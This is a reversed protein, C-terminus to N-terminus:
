KSIQGAAFLAFDFFPPVVNDMRFVQVVRQSKGATGVSTYITAQAPLSCPNGSGGCNLGKPAVAMQQSTDSYLIRARIIVPLQGSPKVDLSPTIQCKFKRDSYRTTDASPSSSTNILYPTAPCDASDFGNATVRGLNSDFYQRTTNYKTGDWTILNVELAPSDDGTSAPDGFYIDVESGQYILSLTPPLAGKPDTLWFQAVTEKGIPPYELAQGPRPLDYIPRVQASSENGLDGTQLIDGIPSGASELQLAKEIGAEAASFARSSQETQTSISVDTISRQTIALGVTLAVLATLLLIIVVQGNQNSLKLM